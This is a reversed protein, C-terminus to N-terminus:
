CSYDLVDGGQVAYGGVIVARTAGSGVLGTFSAVPTCSGRTLLLPGPQAGALVATSLADPFAAGNAFYATGSPLAAALAAATGFRDGGAARTVAIGASALDSQIGPSVSVPGGAITVHTTGWGSLAARTAPDLAGLRGDTLLVPRGTSAAAAAAALADPFAAGTVLFLDPVSAGFADAVVARSVAFRDAGAIRDVTTAFPLAKLDAVVQDSLANTGGVVVIRAPHLRVLEAAVRTDVAGPMTLLLTGHLKAAAAGASLADPFEIGSAIYAVPVGATGDPYAKQSAAVSTAFRDSASVRDQTTLPPAVQLYDTAQEIVVGPLVTTVMGRLYSGILDLTTTFSTGTAGPVQSWWNHPIPM